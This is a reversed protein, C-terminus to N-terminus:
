RVVIERREVDYQYKVIEGSIIFHIAQEIIDFPAVFWERPRSRVGDEDEIDIDLCATGFFRHLLSEFKAPEVNYVEYESVLHVEAMLYTPEKEANKIRNAVYGTCYGIKYLDKLAAIKPDKSKSQLVYLYGKSKDKNTINKFNNLLKEDHETVRRGDKYLGAALSRLLMDSETGNEFICRLRANVKGKINERKGVEAVYLLVGQLVFFYGKGIQQENAFPMLKRKKAKLDAQCKKLIAEFKDFDKCPKRRAIYDPMTTKKDPISVHKLNFINDGDNELIGLLDNNLIDDISNVEVVPEKKSIIKEAPPENAVASQPLIITTYDKEKPIEKLLNFRDYQKLITIKDPQERLGKLRFFLTSEQISGEAPERKNQEFFVNIEEFSTVLREGENSSSASPKVDGILGLPDSNLIDEFTLKKKDM